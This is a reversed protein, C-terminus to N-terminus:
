FLSEEKKLMGITQERFMELSIQIDNRLYPVYIRKNGQKPVILHIYLGKCKMGTLIELQFAYFSLQVAIKHYKTKSLHAIPDKHWGRVKYLDSEGKDFCKFDSMEFSAGARFSTVGFKDPSGAVRYYDNYVVKQEFTAHYEEYHKLVDRVEDAIDPYKEFFIPDVCDQIANDYYVGVDRQGNWKDLITEKSVGDRSALFTAIEDKRFPEALFSDYFRSFGMYENGNADFYKHSEADLKVKEEYLSKNAM